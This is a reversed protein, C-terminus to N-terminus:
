EEGTRAMKRQRELRAASSRLVDPINKSTTLIHLDTATVSSLMHLTVDLPTKPNMMLARVITYNKRFKRSQAILRLVEESLNAMAAFGEVERESLRQSQLVARQVVKCPDRILSMREERNGKLALQVREVVRMRSLRQILSLRQEKDQLAEAAAEAFAAASETTIRMMEELQQRQDATLSASHALASVLMPSASLRDLDNMLEQVTEAPVSKAARLLFEQPCRWHKIMAAAVLPKETLHHGCYRFLQAAPADGQLAAVIHDLPQSVLANGARERINEDADEALVALLEAREAGPLHATGSYV